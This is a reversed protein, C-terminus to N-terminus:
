NIDMGAIETWKNVSAAKVSKTGTTKAAMKSPPPNFDGWFVWVRCRCDM